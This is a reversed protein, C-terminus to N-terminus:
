AAQAPPFNVACIAFDRIWSRMTGFVVGMPGGGLGSSWISGFSNFAHRFATVIVKHSTRGSKPGLM